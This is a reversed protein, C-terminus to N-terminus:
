RPAVMWTIGWTVFAMLSNTTVPLSPYSKTSTSIPPVTPSM